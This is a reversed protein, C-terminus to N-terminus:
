PYSSLPCNFTHRIILLYSTEASLISHTEEHNSCVNADGPEAFDKSLGLEREREREREREGPVTNAWLQKQAQCSLGQGTRKMSAWPFAM